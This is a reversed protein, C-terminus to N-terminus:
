MYREIIGKKSSNDEEELPRQKIRYHENGKLM